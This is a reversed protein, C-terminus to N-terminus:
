QNTQTMVVIVCGSSIDLPCFYLLSFNGLTEMLNILKITLRKEISMRKMNMMLM